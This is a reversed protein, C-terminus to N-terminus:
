ELELCPYSLGANVKDVIGGSAAVTVETATVEGYFDVIAITKEKQINCRPLSGERVYRVIRLRYVSESM